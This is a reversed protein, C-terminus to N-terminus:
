WHLLQPPQTCEPRWERAAMEWPIQHGLGACRVVACLSVHGHDKALVAGCVAGSLAVSSRAGLRIGVSGACM